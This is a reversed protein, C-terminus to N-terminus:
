DSSELFVTSLFPFYTILILAVLLCLLFSLSAWYLKVVPEKFRISAIFLNLGVPPTIYGIGLNTLFITGLHVPHIGFQIAVPSIIPVILVIAAYIDIMCGILLLFLNLAILFTIKSNMRASFYELLRIPVDQDILFNTVAFTM